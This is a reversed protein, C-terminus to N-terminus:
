QKIFKLKVTSINNTTVLVWYMGAALHAVDVDKITTGKEAIFNQALVIKGGGNVIQVRTKQTESNNLLISVMNNVLSPYLQAKFDVSKNSVSKIDSYTYKGDKDVMQLRYYNVGYLPKTDTFSYSKATTSNGAATVTGILSFDHANVSKEVNFKLTNIETATQWNLQNVKGLGNASFSLLKLPLLIQTNLKFVANGLVIYWSSDVYYIKGIDPVEKVPGGNFALYRKSSNTFVIDGTENLNEILSSSLFHTIQKNNGLSDRIWVQMQASVNKKCYAVFKNNIKLYGSRFFSGAGLDSNGFDSLLINNKGDYLYSSINQDGCCEGTKLYGIYEGDTTPYVNWKTGGDNSTITSLAGNKYAIINYNYDWFVAQGNSAVNNYINGANNSLQIKTKTALNKFYFYNGNSWVAYDGKASVTANYSGLSDLTGANWDYVKNGSTFVAGTSTVFGFDSIGGKFPIITETNNSIDIVRPQLPVGGTALVHNKNLDFISSSGKYVLKLLPQTAPTIFSVPITKGASQQRSDTVLIGVYGGQSSMDLDMELSDKVKGSYLQQIQSNISVTCDSVDKIKIKLHIFPTAVFNDLPEIFDVVPPNDYIFSITDSKKNNLYDIATVTVSLTDGEPLSAVSLSGEYFQTRTNLMLNTQLSNNIVATVSTLENDSTISARILIGAGTVQFQTPSKIAVSIQSFCNLSLTLSLFLILINKM